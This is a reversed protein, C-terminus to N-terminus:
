LLPPLVVTRNELCVYMVLVTGSLRAAILSREVPGCVHVQDTDFEQRGYHLTFFGSQWFLLGSYMILLPLVTVDFLLPLCLRTGVTEMMM